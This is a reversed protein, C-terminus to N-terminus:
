QYCLGRQPWTVALLSVRSLPSASNRGAFKNQFIRQACHAYHASLGEHGWALSTVAGAIQLQSGQRVGCASCTASWDFPAPVGEHGRALGVVPGAIQVQQGEDLRDNADRPLVAAAAPQPVPQHVQHLVTEHLVCALRHMMSTHKHVLGRGADVRSHEMKPADGACGSCLQQKRRAFM